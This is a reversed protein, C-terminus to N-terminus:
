FEVDEELDEVDAAEFDEEVEVVEEEELTPPEFGDPWITGNTFCKRVNANQLNAGQLNAGQLNAGQLNAGQLKAGELNAGQLNAGQLKAGQLKAKRLNSKEINAGEISAKKLNAGVLNAGFIIAGQINAKELDAKYLDTGLLIAAQLNAGKLNARFLSSQRLDAGQLNAGQLNAEELRTGGLRAGRLNAKTAFIIAKKNVFWFWALLSRLNGTDEQEFSNSEISCGIALAAERFVARQDYRFNTHDPDPFSQSENNFCEQAWAVLATREHDSWSLPSESPWGKKELIMDQLFSFSKDEEGLLRGGFLKKEQDKRKGGSSHVIRQLQHAWYRAVLFERFSQHGFLIQGNGRSLDTQLSLLVGMLIASVVENKDIKLEKDLITEITHRQVHRPPDEQALKHAEWAVRSLLWLMAEQARNQEWEKNQGEINGPPAPSDKLEKSNVLCRFLGLSAAFIPQHHDCDAKAKGRAIQQFFREYLGAKSLLGSQSSEDWSHAIMFLLIPTQALELLGRNAIKEVSIESDASRVHENWGKLWQQIQGPHDGTVLDSLPLVEVKAAKSRNTSPPLAEPRSFVLFRWREDTKEKLKLFLDELRRQDLAVEDLGDLVILTRQSDEPLAFAPDSTKLQLGLAGMQRQWARQVTAQLDFVEGAFDDACRIFIPHWLEVAPKSGNIYEIALDRVFRRATMSKGFGFNAKVSVAEQQPAEILHKLLSLLPEAQEQGEVRGHPPVYLDDMRLFPVGQDANYQERRLNGFVHNDGWAALDKILLEQVIRTRYDKLANQYGQVAKGTPSNLGEWYALLFHREFERGSKPDVLPEGISVDSFAKWLSQYYTNRLPGHILGDLSALEKKGPQSTVTVSALQVAALRQKLDEQHQKEEGNFFRKVGGITLTKAGAWYTEYARGFAALILAVFQADETKASKPIGQVALGVDLAATLASLDKSDLGNGWAEWGKAGLSIIKSAVGVFATITAPDFAM